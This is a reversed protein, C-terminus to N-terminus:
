REETAIERAIEAGKQESERLKEVLKTEMKAGVMPLQIDVRGQVTRRCGEDTEEVSTTGRADVRDTMFPTELTWEVLDERRDVRQELDYEFQEIGLAKQMMAPIERLSVCRVRRSWVEDGRRDEEVIERRMETAEELRREFEESSEMIEWLRDPSCDFEDTVMFSEM